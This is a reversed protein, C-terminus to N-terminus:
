GSYGTYYTSSGLSGTFNSNGYYKCYTKIVMTYGGVYMGKRESKEYSLHNSYPTLYQATSVLAQAVGSALLGWLGIAPATLITIVVATGVDQWVRQGLTVVHSTTGMQTPLNVDTVGSPLKEFKISQQAYPTAEYISLINKSILKKNEDYSELIIPEGDLYLDGSLKIELLNTLGNEHFKYITSGQEEKYSTFIPNNSLLKATDFSNEQVYELKLGSSHVNKLISENTFFNRDISLYNAQIPTVSTLLLSFTLLGIVFKKLKKRM